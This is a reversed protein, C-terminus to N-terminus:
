TEPTATAIEQITVKSLIPDVRVEFVVGGAAFQLIAPTEQDTGGTSDFALIADGAFDFGVIEVEEFGADGAAGLQRLMPQGTQPHPLPTDPASVRAVWYRHADADIKILAPNDPRAISLSRAYAVDSELLTAARDAQAQITVNMGPLVALALIALIVIVIMIEILTIAAHRHM